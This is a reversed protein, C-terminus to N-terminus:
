RLHGARDPTGPRTRVEESGLLLDLVMVDVARKSLVSRAEETSRVATVQYGEASLGEELGLSVQRDDEVVLVRRAPVRAGVM